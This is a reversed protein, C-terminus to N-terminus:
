FCHGSALLAIHCYQEVPVYVGPNVLAEELIKKQKKNKIRAGSALTRYMDYGIM